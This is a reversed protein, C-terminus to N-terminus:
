SFQSLYNMYEFDEISDDRLVKDIFNVIKSASIDESLLKINTFHDIYCM